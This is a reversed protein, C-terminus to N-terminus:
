MYAKVIGCVFTIILLFALPIIKYGLEFILEKKEKSELTDELENLKIIRPDKNLLEKLNEAKLYIDKEM